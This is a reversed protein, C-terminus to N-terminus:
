LGKMASTCRDFEQVAGGKSKESKGKTSVSRETNLIKNRKLQYISMYTVVAHAESANSTGSADALGLIGPKGLIQPLLISPSSASM